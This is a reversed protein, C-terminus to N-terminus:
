EEGSKSTGSCSPGSDRLQTREQSLPIIVTPTSSPSERLNCHFIGALKYKIKWMLRFLAERFKSGCFSYLFFNISFNLYFLFQCLKQIDRELRSRNHLPDTFTIVFLRFRMVCSPLNLILFMSSVIVLLKTVKNQAMNSMNSSRSSTKVLGSRVSTVSEHRRCGTSRASLALNHAIKLNFIFISLFPLILSTLGDAYTLIMHIRYYGPLPMCYRHKENPTVQVGTMWLSCSYMLVATVTLGCVVKKARSATCMEPRKFPLCIAIYREVTFSVVFWASLFSFVYTSFIVLQCLGPRHFVLENDYKWWALSLSLLFGSDSIALAGLYVSLSLRNLYTTMFVVLSVTNGCLGLTIITPMYYMDMWEVIYDMYVRGEEGPQQGTSANGLKPTSYIHSVNSVNTYEM